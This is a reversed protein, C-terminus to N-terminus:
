PVVPDLAADLVTSEMLELLRVADARPLYNTDVQILADVATPHPNVHIMFMQHLGEVEKWVTRTDALADSIGARTPVDAIPGEDGRRDNFMCRLDISTGRDAAVAAVVEDGEFPSYYAHKQATLLRRRASRVLEAFDAGVEITCLGLQAMPGAANGLGPRFRNNVTITTAVQGVGTTASLARAFAAYLVAGTNTGLRAAVARLALHLGPSTYEAQWFRGPYRDTHHRFVAAPFMTPPIARLQQEWYRLAAENQRRGSPTQQLRAQELPQIGPPRPPEGTVPDRDRLDEFMALASTPDAVHHALAVVAHTLAGQHRVLAWRMPWEREYDFNVATYREGVEAAVRAPDAGDADYVEIVATGSTPVLQTARGDADFRLLTRMTEYRSLYFGYEATFQAIQAGPALERVATMTLSVGSDVMGKWVSQQGWSLEGNGGSDGSFPVVVHEAVKIDMRQSEM